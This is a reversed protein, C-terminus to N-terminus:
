VCYVIGLFLFVTLFDYNQAVVESFTVPKHTNSYREMFKFEYKM